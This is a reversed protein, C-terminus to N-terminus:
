SECFHQDIERRQNPPCDIQSLEDQIDEDDDSDPEEVESSPLGLRAAAAAPPTRKPNTPSLLGGTRPFHLNTNPTTAGGMRTTPEPSPSSMRVDGKEADVEGRIGSSRRKVWARRYSPQDAAKRMIPTPPTLDYDSDYNSGGTDVSLAPSRKGMEVVYYPSSTNPSPSIAMCPSPAKPMAHTPPTYTPIASFFPSMHSPSFFPTMGQSPATKRQPFSNSRKQANASSSHPHLWFIKEEFVDDNVLINNKMFMNDPSPTLRDLITVRLEVGYRASREVLRLSKSTSSQPIFSNILAYAESPLSISATSISSTM